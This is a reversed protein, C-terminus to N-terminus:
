PIRATQADSISLMFFLGAIGIVLLPAIYGHLVEFLSRDFRLCYFLAVIRAQNAVFVVLSGAFIGFLKRRPDHRFVLVAAALMLFTEVGECGNLISLQVHKSILEHGQAVVHEEPTIWSILKSSPVVTM